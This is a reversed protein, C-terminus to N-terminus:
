NERALFMADNYYIWLIDDNVIFFRSGFFDNGSSVHVGTVEGIGNWWEGLNIGYEQVIMEETYTYSTYEYGTIVMNQDNWSVAEKQYTVTSDIFASLEEAKEAPLSIEDAPQCAWIKWTGYFSVNGKGADADGNSEQSTANDENREPNTDEDGQESASNGNQKTTLDDNEEEETKSLKSFEFMDAAEELQEKTLSLAECDKLTDADVAAIDYVKGDKVYISNLHVNVFDQAGNYFIYSLKTNHNIMLDLSDGNANTYNWEDYDTLNGLRLGLSDLVGKHSVSIQGTYIKEGEKDMLDFDGHWNGEEYIVASLFNMTNPATIFNEFKMHNLFEEYSYTFTRKGELKLNYKKLIEELKDAMVQTYIGYSEPYKSFTGDIIGNRLNVDAKEAAESYETTETYENLFEWWEQSAKWEDSEPAGFAIETEKTEKTKETVMNEVKFLASAGVTTVIGAALLVVVAAAVWKKNHNKMYNREKVRVQEILMKQRKEFRESFVHEERKGTEIDLSQKTLDFVKNKRSMKRSEKGEIDSQGRM